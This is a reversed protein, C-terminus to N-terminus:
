KLIEKLVVGDTGTMEQGLLHAVTPAIDVNSPSEVKVGRKVGRGSVIFIANMKPNEALYGHYGVMQRGMVVPTVEDEGSASNSFGYGAKASLVLDPAQENQDPLPLGHRAFDEPAIVKEIGEKDKFLEILKARDAAAAKRDDLYLLSTGGTPVTM